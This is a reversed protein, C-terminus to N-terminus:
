LVSSGSLELVLLGWLSEILHLVRVNGHLLLSWNSLDLLVLTFILCLLGLRDRAWLSFRSLM